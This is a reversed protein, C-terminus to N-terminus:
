GDRCDRYLGQATWPRFNKNQAARSMLLIPLAEFSWSSTGREGRSRHILGLSVRGVSQICSRGYSGSTVVFGAEGLGQQNVGNRLALGPHGAHCATDEEGPFHTYLVWFGSFWKQGTDATMHAAKGPVRPCSDEDWWCTVLFHYCWRDYFSIRFSHRIRLLPM